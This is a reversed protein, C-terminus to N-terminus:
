NSVITHKREAKIITRIPRPIDVTTKTRSIKCLVFVFHLLILDCYKIWTFDYFLIINKEQRKQM